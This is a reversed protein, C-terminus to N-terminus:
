PIVVFACRIKCNLAAPVGIYIQRFYVAENMKPKVSTDSQINTKASRWKQATICEKNDDDKVEKCFKELVEHITGIAVIKDLGARTMENM